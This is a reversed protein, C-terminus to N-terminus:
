RSLLLLEGDFCVGKKEVASKREPEYGSVIGGGPPVRELIRVITM